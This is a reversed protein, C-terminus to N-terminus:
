TGDLQLYILVPARIKKEVEEAIQHEYITWDSTRSRESYVAIVKDASYASKSINEKISSGAKFDRKDRIVDIEHDRLWQDLKNVRAEDAWAYSLFVIPRRAIESRDLEAFREAGVEDLLKMVLKARTGPGIRGDVNRSGVRTQFTRVDQSLQEDFLLPNSASNRRVGLWILAKRVNKCAIAKDGIALVDHDPDSHKFYLEFRKILKPNMVLGGPM